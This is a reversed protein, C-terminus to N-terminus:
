TFVEIMDEDELQADQVTQKSDLLENDFRLRLKTRRPLKKRVKYHDLLKSLSTEPRVRVMLRETKDVLTLRIIDSDPEPTEIHNQSLEPTDQTETLEREFQLELSDPAPACSTVSLKRESEVAAEQEQERREVESSSILTVEVDSIEDELVQPIRLSNCTMFTLLRADNWYMAVNEMTYISGTANSLAKLAEPLIRSFRQSGLVKVQVSKGLSGELQSRFRVNFIRRVERPTGATTDTTLSRNAGRQKKDRSLEEFFSDTEDEQPIANRLPATRSRKHKLSSHCIESKDDPEEGESEILIHSPQPLSPTNESLTPSEFAISKQVPKLHLEFRKEEPEEDSGVFFGDSDLDSSM